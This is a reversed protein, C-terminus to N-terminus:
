PGIGFMLSFMEEIGDHWDGPNWGCLGAACGDVNM